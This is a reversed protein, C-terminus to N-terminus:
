LTQEHCECNCPLYEQCDPKCQCAIRAYIEGLYKRYPKPAKRIAAKATEAQVTAIKRGEPSWYLDYRTATYEKAVESDQMLTVAEGGARGVNSQSQEIYTRMTREAERRNHGSYVTGINGVIVDYTHKM